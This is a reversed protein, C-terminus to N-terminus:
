GKIERWTNQIVGASGYSKVASYGNLDLTINTGSAGAHLVGNGDILVGGHVEANGQTTVLVGGAEATNPHYIVGYFDTTGGLYLTGSAMILLGPHGASNFQTNSTYSCAGGEVYVVSGTLQAATPCGTYYTGDAIARAKLRERADATMAPGGDYGTNALTPVPRIQQKNGLWNFLSEVSAGTPQALCPLPDLAVPDCRVLVTADSGSATADIIVKNGNNQHELRGAIVAAHPIEEDQQETRVLAVITRTKGAATASARVWLKGDGNADYAPQSLVLSDSYFTSTGSAGNDRVITQWSAGNVLDQSGILNQLQSAAPCRTGTSAPTCTPYPNGAMGQGPWDRAMAFVQGNLGAEALNFASERRRELGSQQTQTDMVTATALGGATLVGLLVMTTVLAWGGQETRLRRMM